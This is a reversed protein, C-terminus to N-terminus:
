AETARKTKDNIWALYAEITKKTSEGRQQAFFDFAKNFNESALQYHANVKSLEKNLVSKDSELKEIKDAIIRFAEHSIADEKLGPVLRILRDIQREM